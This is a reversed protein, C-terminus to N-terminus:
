YDWGRLDADKRYLAFEYQGGDGPKAAIYTVSGGGQLLDGVDRYSELAGTIFGPLRSGRSNEYLENSRREYRDGDVEIVNRGAFSMKQPDGIDYVTFTGSGEDYDFSAVKASQAIDEIVYTGRLDAEDTQAHARPMGSVAFVACLMALLIGRSLVDFLSKM